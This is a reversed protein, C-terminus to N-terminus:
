RKNYGLEIGNGKHNETYKDVEEQDMGYYRPITFQSNNLFIEKSSDDEPLYPKKEVEEVEEMLCLCLFVLSAILCIGTFCALPISIEKRENLGDIFDPKSKAKLVLYKGTVIDYGIAPTAKSMDIQSSHQLYETMAEITNDGFYNLFSNKNFYKLNPFYLVNLDICLQSYAM